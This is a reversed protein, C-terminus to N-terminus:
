YAFGIRIAAVELDSGSGVPYRVQVRGNGDGFWKQSVPPMLTVEGADCIVVDDPIVAPDAPDRQKLRTVEYSVSGVNNVILMVDGGGQYYDGAETIAVFNADNQSRIVRLRGSDEDYTVSGGALPQVTIEAM